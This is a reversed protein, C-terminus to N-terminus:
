VSRRDVLDVESRERAPSEGPTLVPLHPLDVFSPSRLLDVVGCPPLSGFSSDDGSAFKNETRTADFQTM